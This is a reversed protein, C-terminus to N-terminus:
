SVLDVEVFCSRRVQCEEPAVLGNDPGATTMTCLCWYQQTSSDGTRWSEVDDLDPVYTNKTRLHRCQSKKDYEM